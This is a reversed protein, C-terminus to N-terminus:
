PTRVLGNTGAEPVTHWEFVLNGWALQGAPVGAQRTAEPLRSFRATRAQDIAWQDASPLGSRVILNASAPRGDRDVTLLIVSNTLLDTHAWSPLEVRTLLRRHALEGQVRLTSKAAFLTEAPREPLSPEPEVSGIVSGLVPLNAEPVSASSSILQRPTLLLWQPEEAWASPENPTPLSLLWAPGAFGNMSPLAFVDPSELAVSGSPIREPLVVPPASRPPRVLVPRRDSFALILGLHAALVLTIIAMWRLPKWAPQESLAQTM